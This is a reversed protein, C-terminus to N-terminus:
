FSVEGVDYCNKCLWELEKNAKESSILKVKGQEVTKIISSINDYKFFILIINDSRCSPCVLDKRSYYTVDLKM